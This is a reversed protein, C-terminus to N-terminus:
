ASGMFYNVVENSAGAVIVGIIGKELRGRADPSGKTWLYGILVFALIFLARLISTIQAAISEVKTAIDGLQAYASDATLLVVAALLMALCITGFMEHKQKM